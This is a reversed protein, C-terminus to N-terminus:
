ILKSQFNAALALLFLFGFIDTFTSLIISSSQAPDLGLRKMCLPIIAGCLTAIAMNGIMAAAVVAGLWINHDLFYCTAGTVLGVAIGNLAGAVVERRVVTFAAGREIENLALGRMVVALSQAGTNGGQGAIIPLYAALVAVKVIIDQFMNIISAALFATALNVLLWPLRKSIKIWTRSGATEEAGAGFLKQIDKSAEEQAFHIIDGFKLAGLLHNEDDVIPVALYRKDIAEKAVEDKNRNVNISYVSSKMVDKILEDDRSVLLDRMVLVGKLRFEEDVAYAYLLPVGSNSLFRIMDIAEAVTQTERFSLYHPDMIAGVTHPAYRQPEEVSTQAPQDHENM